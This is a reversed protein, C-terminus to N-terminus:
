NLPDHNLNFPTGSTCKSSDKVPYKRLYLMLGIGYEDSSALRCRVYSEAKENEGMCKLYQVESWVAMGESSAKGYSSSFIDNMNEGQWIHTLEHVITKKAEILPSGNEFVMEHTGPIAFGLTRGDYGPTPTFTEGLMEALTKADVSKIKMREKIKIGYIRCMEAKTQKYVKKFGKLDKIATKHCEECMERGDAKNVIIKSKELKKGCFDCYHEGPEFEFNYYKQKRNKIKRRIKTLYNYDEGLGCESICNYAGELDFHENLTDKGYLLYHSESYKPPVYEDEDDETYNVFEADHGEIDDSNDRAAVSSSRMPAASRSESPSEDSGSDTGPEEKEEDTEPIEEETESTEEESGPVEEEAKKKKKKRRFLKKFFGLIGKKEETDEETEEEPPQAGADTGEGGSEGGEPEEPPVNLEEELKEKHWCLVDCIIELIREFYRDINILLGLDIISDEIIYISEDDDVDLGPMYGDYVSSDFSTKTSACIYEYTDPFMTVFLENLLTTITFRVDETIGEIKIRIVSKNIYSRDPIFGEGFEVRKANQMDGYDRMEFYGKTKVRIREADCYEFTIKRVSHQEEGDEDKAKYLREANVVKGPAKCVISYERLQRYYKRSNIHDSARRVIVGNGPTINIVEYAKGNFSLQMGPLYKQYIHGYLISGLYLNKDNEDEAIYYSIRLQSLFEDIVNKNQISYVKKREYRYTDKNVSDDSGTILSNRLSEVIHKRKDADCDLSRYVYDNIHKILSEYVNSYNEGVADLMAAIEEESLKGSILRILIKYTVNASSRQYDAVFNPIAKADTSFIEVNEAMYRRLWYNQSIVNVLTQEDGRTAFQRATEFANNYEDEVVLFADKTKKLAWMDQMFILHKSLENQSVPLNMASCLSEYYQSVIWRMDIVPFKQASIWKVESVGKNIGVAALETGVGLYRSSDLGLKDRMIGGDAKWFLTSQVSTGATTASVYEISTGTVHSLSDVLGDCNRDFAIYQPKEERNLRSIVCSLGIQMTSLLRSPEMLFVMSVDKLFETSDSLLEQNYVDKLQLIAISTDDDADALDDIKWVGPINSVEALGREFWGAINKDTGERGLIVLIKKRRILQRNVPIFIYKETDEYFLTFFIVSKGDLLNRTQRLMGDDLQEGRDYASSFYRHMLFAEQSQTEYYEDLYSQLLNAIAESDPNVPVDFKDKKLRDPFLKKYIPVLERYNIEPEEETEPEKAKGKKQEEAIMGNLFFYVEGLLVVGFAPYFATSFLDRSNLQHVLIFLLSSLVIAVIYMVMFMRRVGLMKTRLFHKKTEEDYYYWRSSLKESIKGIQGVGLLLPALVTKILMFGLVLATNAVVSIVFPLNVSDKLFSLFSVNDVLYYVFDTIKVSIKDLLIVAVICYILAFVPLLMQAHRRSKPLNYKISLLCIIVFPLVWALEKLVNLLGEM